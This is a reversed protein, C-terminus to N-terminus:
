EYLLRPGQITGDVTVERGAAAARCLGGAPGEPRVRLAESVEPVRPLHWAPHLQLEGEGQMHVASLKNNLSTNLAETEDSRRM